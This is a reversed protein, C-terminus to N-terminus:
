YPFVFHYLYIIITNLFEPFVLGHTLLWLLWGIVLGGLIDLPYHFGVLVRFIILPLTVLLYVLPNMVGYQTVFLFFYAAKITHGSPFSGTAYWRSVLGPPADQHLAYIPRKWLGYKKGYKEIIEGVVTCLLIQWFANASRSVLLYSIFLLFFWIFYNLLVMVMNGYELALIQNLYLKKPQWFFPNSASPRLKPFLFYIKEM